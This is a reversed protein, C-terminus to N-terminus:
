KNMIYTTYALITAFILWMVYPILLYISLMNAKTYYYQYIVLLATILTFLTFVFGGLLNHMGFMVPSFMFNIIIHITPLIWYKYDKNYYGYYSSIGILIYLITWGYQFVYSPPMFSPKKITKFWNDPKFIFGLLSGIILPYLIFLTIKINDIM